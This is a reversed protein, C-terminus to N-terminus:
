AKSGCMGAARYEITVLLREKGGGADDHRLIVRRIWRHFLRRLLARDAPDFRLGTRVLAEVERELSDWRDPGREASQLEAALRDREAELSRIREAMAQAARTRVAADSLDADVLIKALREQAATLQRQVEALRRSLASRNGERPVYRSWFQEPGPLHRWREELRSLILAHLRDARVNRQNCCAVGKRFKTTCTYYNFGRSANRGHHIMPSGCRGCVLLGTLPHRANPQHPQFGPRARRRLQEQVREFLDRPVIGEHANEVVTVESEPRVQMKRRKRGFARGGTVTSELTRTYRYEVRGQVLDGVYARRTLMRRILNITWVRDDLHAWKRTENLHRAIRGAGIGEAAMAFIDLIVPRLKDIPRLRKTVPDYDFGYPPIGGKWEGKTAKQRMAIKVAISKRDSEMRSLFSHIQFIAMASGREASDFGEELSLLRIGQGDLWEFFMRAEADDRNFRSLGKIFVVKVEGREVVQILKQMAPRELISHSWGSIGDDQFVHRIVYEVQQNSLTRAWERLAMVQHELSDGQRVTEQSIRALIACPLQVPGSSM